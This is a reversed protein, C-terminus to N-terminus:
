TATAVLGAAATAALELATPIGAVDKGELAKQAREWADAHSLAVARARLADLSRLRDGVPAVFVECVCCLPHARFWKARITMWTTGRTRPTAGPNAALMTGRQTNTAVLRPKLMQVM